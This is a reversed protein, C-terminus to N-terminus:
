KCPPIETYNGTYCRSAYALINVAEALLRLAEEKGCSAFSSNHYIASLGAWHNVAMLQPIVTIMMQDKIAMAEIFSTVKPNNDNGTSLWDVTKQLSDYAVYAYLHFHIATAPYAGNVGYKDKDQQALNVLNKLKGLYINLKEQTIQACEKGTAPPITYQASATISLLYNVWFLLLLKKM